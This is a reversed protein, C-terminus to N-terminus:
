IQIGGVLELTKRKQIDAYSLGVKRAEAEIEFAKSPKGEWKEPKPMNAQKPRGYETNALPIGLLKGIGDRGGLQNVIKWNFGSKELNRITPVFTWNEREAADRIERECNELNDWYGKPKKKVKKM